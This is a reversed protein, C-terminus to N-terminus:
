CRNSVSGQGSRCHAGRPPSGTNAMAGSGGVLGSFERELDWLCRESTVKEEIPLKSSVLLLIQPCISM